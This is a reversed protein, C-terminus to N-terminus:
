VIEPRQARAECFSNKGTTRCFRRAPCEGSPRRSPARPSDGSPRNARTRHSEARRAAKPANGRFFNQV